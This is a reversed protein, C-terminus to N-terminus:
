TIKISAIMAHYGAITGTGAKQQESLLTGPVPGGNMKREISGSM